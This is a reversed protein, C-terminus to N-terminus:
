KPYYQQELWLMPKATNVDFYLRFTFRSTATFYQFAVNESDTDIKLPYNMAGDLYYSKNFDQREVIIVRFHTISAEGLSKDFEGAIRRLNFKISWFATFSLTCYVILKYNNIYFTPGEFIRDEKVMEAFRIEWEVGDLHKMIRLNWSLENQKKKLSTNEEKLKEIESQFDKKVEVLHIQVMDTHEVINEKKHALLDRKLISKAECGYEKYPCTVLELECESRHKLLNKRPFNARCENPCPLPFEPCVTSHQSLFKAKKEQHCYQCKVIRMPCNKTEHQEGESRYFVEKCLDCQILFSECKKLHNEAESLKGSWRCERLLPCKIELQNVATQVLKVRNMDTPSESCVLCTTEEKYLSANRTIGVCINCIVFGEEMESLNRALYERRYGGYVLKHKMQRKVYLIDDENDPGIEIKSAM